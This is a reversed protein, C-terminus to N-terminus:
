FDIRFGAQQRRKEAASTPLGFLPSQLVGVYGSFNDTNLLNYVEWYVTARMRDRLRFSKGVRVDLTSFADGRRSNRPEPRDPFPDADLQQRTTASWPPASRYVYAGSLELSWPFTVNGHVALNHRRDANDPGQDESIDFPNNPGELGAFITDSSNSTAKSLTYAAYLRGQKGQYRVQTLLANYTSKGINVITGIRGFRADARSYVGNSVTINQDLGATGQRGLSLVYDAEVSIDHGLQHSAGITFQDTFPVELGPDTRNVIENSAPVMSLDPLYPFSRALFLRLAQPSGFPAWSLPANANFAFFGDSLLGNAFYIAIFNNHNQDYFRGAALRVVTGRSGWPTWAVGFRPAVNDTDSRAKKLLPTGGKRAVIRANKADVHENGAELTGDYDYRLGLNLTLDHTLQWTDQVFLYSNWRAADVVARGTNALLMVPYSNPDNIDFAIDNAFLFSGDHYNTMDMILRVRYLQVGAKLQHGGAAWSFSDAIQVTTEGQLGSFIPCGLIAGPYEQRSFTGPPGLDLNGAGGTGSKNCIVPAKNSGYVTRLENFRSNGITTTWSGVVSWIPGGFRHRTEETELASLQPQNTNVRNTRDFRVSLRNRTDFNADVKIMFPNDRATVPLVTKVGRQRWYDSIALVDSSERDFREYGAFFFLKNKLIPGALLAGLRTQSLPLPADLYEPKGRADFTGAFPAADLADDRLFGYLRGHFENTGSRTIANIIGGSATGFEAPYSNTMVQFEQIWDQVFTSSQRGFQQWEATAGDVYFGNAFGRQGNVSLSPGNGGTGFTVGPALLALSAFDRDIVPLRDIQDKDIITGITNRTTELLPQAGAVLLEETIGGVKLTVDVTTEQGVRLVLGAMRTESFGPLSARLEYAGAPLNPIFYQGSSGAVMTRSANTATSRATVAAGELSGGQEDSVRGRLTAMINQAGANPAASAVGIGILLAHVRVAPRTM